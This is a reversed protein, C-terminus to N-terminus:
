DCVSLMSEENKKEKKSSSTVNRIPKKLTKLNRKRKPQIKRSQKQSVESKKIWPREGIISSIEEVIAQLGRMEERTQLFEEIIKDILKNFSNQIPTLQRKDIAQCHYQYDRLVEYLATLKRLAKVDCFTVSM